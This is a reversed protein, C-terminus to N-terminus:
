QVVDMWILYVKPVGQIVTFCLVLLLLESCKKGINNLFLDWRNGASSYGSSSPQGGSAQGTNGFGM